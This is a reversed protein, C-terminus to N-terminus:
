CHPYTIQICKSTNKIISRERSAASTYKSLLRKVNKSSSKNKEIESLEKIFKDILSLKIEAEALKFFNSKSM